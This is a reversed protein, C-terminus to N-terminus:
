DDPHLAKAALDKVAEMAMAWTVDAAYSYKMQYRRWHGQVVSSSAITEITDAMARMQDVTGRRQATKQLAVRFTEPQFPQTTTLIYMDYFDRM